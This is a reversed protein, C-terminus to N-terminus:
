PKKSPIEFADLLSGDTRIAQVRMTQGKVDVTCFHWCTETKVTEPGSVPKNWLM